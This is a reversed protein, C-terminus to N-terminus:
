NQCFGCYGLRRGFVLIPTMNCKMQFSLEQARQEDWTLPQGLRSFTSFHVQFNEFVVEKTKGESEMPTYCILLFRMEQVKQDFWDIPQGFNHVLFIPTSKRLSVEWTWKEAKELRPCGEVHSSYLARLASFWLSKELIRKKHVPAFRILISVGQFLINNLAQKKLFINSLVLIKRSFIPLHQASIKLKIEATSHYLLFNLPRDIKILGACLPNPISSFLSGM